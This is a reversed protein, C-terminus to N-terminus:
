DVHIVEFVIRSKLDFLDIRRGSLPRVARKRRYQSDAASNLGSIVFMADDPTASVNMACESFDFAPPTQPVSLVATPELLAPHLPSAGLDFPSIEGSRTQAQEIRVSEVRVSTAHM